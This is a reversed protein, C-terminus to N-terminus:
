TTGADTSYVVADASARTAITLVTGDVAFVVFASGSYNAAGDQSGADDPLPLTLLGGEGFTCDLKWGAADCPDFPLGADFLADDSGDGPTSGDEDRGGEGGPTTADPSVGTGPGADDLVFPEEGIDVLAACGGAGVVVALTLLGTKRTARSSSAAPPRPRATGSCISPRRSTISRM